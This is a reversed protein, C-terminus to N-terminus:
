TGSPVTMAKSTTWGKLPAPAPAAAGAQQVLLEVGNVVAKNLVLKYPGTLVSNGRVFSEGEVLICHALRTSYECTGEFKFFGPSEGKWKIVFIQSPEGGILATKEAAVEMSHDRFWRSGSGGYHNFAVKNSVKLPFLAAAKSKDASLIGERLVQSFNIVGLFRSSESSKTEGVKTSRLNYRDAEVSLVENIFEGANSTTFFRTGVPAPTFAAAWSQGGLLLLSVGWYFQM